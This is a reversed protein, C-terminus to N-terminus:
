FAKKQAAFALFLGLVIGLLAAFLVRFESPLLFTVTHAPIWFFPITKGLVFGWHMKWNIGSLVVDPRIKKSFFGTLSGNTNEIHTDTIKHITMMVPAFFINMTVSVTFATLVMVFSINEGKLSGSANSIGLAELFVPAGNVFIIFAMYIFIGLFGWVLARPLIGFGKKSYNGTRIRLGAVEGATALIAFKLFSMVIGHDRTLIKFTDLFSPFLIFPFFLLLVIGAFFIDKTKM